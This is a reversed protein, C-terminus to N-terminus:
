LIEWDGESSRRISPLGEVSEVKCQSIPCYNAIKTSCESDKPMLTVYHRQLTKGYHRREYLAEDKSLSLLTM